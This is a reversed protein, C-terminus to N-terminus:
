RVAAEVINTFRSAYDNPGRAVKVRSMWAQSSDKPSLFEGGTTRTIGAPLFDFNHMWGCRPMGDARTKMVAAVTLVLVVTRM